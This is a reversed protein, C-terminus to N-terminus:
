KVRCFVENFTFQGLPLYYCDGVLTIRDTTVRRLLESSYYIIDLSNGERKVIEYKMNKVVLSDQYYVTVESCTYEFTLKSFNNLLANLQELTLNGYKEIQELTAKENSRWKGALPCNSKSTACSVILFLCLSICAINKIKHMISM